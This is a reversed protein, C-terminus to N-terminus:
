RAPVTMTRGDPLTITQGGGGAPCPGLWTQDMVMHRPGRGSKSDVVMHIHTRFDGTVVGSTATVGGRRDPCVSDFAWGGPVPHVDHKSCTAGEGGRDYPGGLPSFSRETAPRRVDEHDHGPAGPGHRVDDDAVPWRSPRADGDAPRRRDHRDRGAPRRRHHIIRANTGGLSQKVPM